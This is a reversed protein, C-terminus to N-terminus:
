FQKARRDLLIIPTRAMLKDKSVDKHVLNKECIQRSWHVIKRQSLMGLVRADETWLGWDCFKKMDDRFVM